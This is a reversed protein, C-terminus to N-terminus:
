EGKLRRYGYVFAVTFLVWALAFLWFRHENLLALWDRYEPYRVRALETQRSNMTLFVGAADAFAIDGDNLDLPTFPHLAEPDGPRFWAGYQKARVIQAIAIGPLKDVDLLLQGDSDAIQVRGRDFRVPITKASLEAPGILLFRTEPALAAGDAFVRIRAPDPSIQLSTTLRALFPLTQAPRELYSEPLYTDFGSALYTTLDSFNAPDRNDRKVLVTSTPLIQVPFRSPDGLCDGQRTERQAVLRIHNTRRLQDRTLSLRVWQAERDNALRVVEQLTGNLYLYFLVKNESLNPTSVVGLELRVPRFSPPLHEPGLIFNWEATSHAYRTSTDLGLTSLPLAYQDASEAMAPLPATAYRSAATVPAWRPALLYFPVVNFPDTLAIMRRNGLKVLALNSQGDPIVASTRPDRTTHAAQDLAKRIDALPAILVDGLKPLTVYEVTRGSRMLMEGISWAATYNKLDSKGAPISIRVSRPLLSWAGRVSEVPAAIEFQLGTEPSVHLYSGNIRQDLCHDPGASLLLASRFSVRLYGPALEEANLRITHVTGEPGSVGKFTARPIDNIYVRLNSHSHLIPSSSFKIRLSGSAIRVDRPVPFFVTQSHGAETGEFLIGSHMGLDALTESGVLPNTARTGHKTAQFPIGGPGAPAIQAVQAHIERSTPQVTGNPSTSVAGLATAPVLCVYLAIAHTLQKM